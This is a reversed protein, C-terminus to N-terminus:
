GISYYYIIDTGLDAVFMISNCLTFVSSHPHPGMQREPHISSGEHTVFCRVETPKGESTRFISVSGSAYNCVTLYSGDENLSIHCPFSGLTSVRYVVEFKSNLTIIQGCEVESIIYIMDKFAKVYTPNTTTM